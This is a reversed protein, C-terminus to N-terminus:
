GILGCQVMASWLAVDVRVFYSGCSGCIVSGCRFWRHVWTSVAVVLCGCAIILFWHEDMFYCAVVLQGLASGCKFWFQCAVGFM